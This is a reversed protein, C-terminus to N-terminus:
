TQDPNDDQAAWRTRMQHLAFVALDGILDPDGTGFRRGISFATRGFM